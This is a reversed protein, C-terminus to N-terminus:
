EQDDKTHSKNSGLANQLIRNEKELEKQQLEDEEIENQTKMKQKNFDIIVQNLESDLKQSFEENFNFLNNPHYKRLQKELVEENKCEIEAM